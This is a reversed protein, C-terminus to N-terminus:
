KNYIGMVTVLNLNRLLLGTMSITSTGAKSASETCIVGHIANVAQFCSNQYTQLQVRRWHHRSPPKCSSSNKLLPPACMMKIREVRLPSCSRSRDKPQFRKKELGRVPDLFHQGGWSKQLLVPRLCSDEKKPRLRGLGCM